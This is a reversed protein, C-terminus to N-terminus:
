IAILNTGLVLPDPYGILNMKYGQSNVFANVNPLPANISAPDLTKIQKGTTGDYIPEVPALLWNAGNLNQRLTAVDNAIQSPTQVTDLASINRITGNFYNTFNALNRGIRFAKNTLLFSDGILLTSFTVTGSAVGNVYVETLPNAGIGSSTIHVVNLGTSIPATIVNVRIAGALRIQFGIAGDTIQMVYRNPEFVGNLTFLVQGSTVDNCNFIACFTFAQSKEWQTFNASSELYDNVGDFNLAYATPPPPPFFDAFTPRTGCITVFRSPTRIIKAM